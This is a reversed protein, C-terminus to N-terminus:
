SLIEVYDTFHGHSINNPKYDFEVDILSEYPGLELDVPIIVNKLSGYWKKVIGEKVTVLLPTKVDDVYLSPDFVKVRTGPFFTKM